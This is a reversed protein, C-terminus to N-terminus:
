EYKKRKQYFKGPRQAHITASTIHFSSITRLNEILWANLCTDEGAICVDIPRQIHAAIKPAIRKKFAASDTHNFLNQKNSVKNFM